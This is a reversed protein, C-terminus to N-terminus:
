AGGQIPLNQGRSRSLLDAVDDLGRKRARDAATHGEKDRISADAGLGLLLRAIELARADDDPLWMLPTDGDSAMRALAPEESLVTRLREVAGTWVLRFVDWSVRTLLEMTRLRRGYIAFGLPTSGYQTEMPDVAAGREILLATVEPADAYAAEHLARTGKADEVDASMGLDLLLAVVDARDHRAAAFMTVTSRLYEPHEQALARAQDRDLRFCAAAFAEEGELVLVGPPAGHRVLLDAMEQRGRRLAEEHLTLKSTRPDRAPPPNPSAGHALIWEALELNNKDVAIGLLYRAGCGYGGMDLMSWNPDDWDAQRGLKVAQAHMQELLWLIDGHFHTNYLVQMDYPEAGREFLLRTLAEFQPHRPANEEGEGFVCTLATYHISDSGGPYWANPDAGRDLLARAIAVANDNAAPHSLRTSCLYLLPPWERPGGPTSASEPDAALLRQVAELDGCVVATYISNRVIEPHRRLLRDAMHGASVRASGGVRWDLSANKLFSAVWEAHRPDAAAAELILDRVELHGAYDAWGAPPAHYKGEMAFPDAGHKLLVSVVEANGRFAAAHLPTYGTTGDVATSPDDRADVSAGLRILEEIIRGSADESARVILTGWRHGPKLCDPDALVLREIDATRQLGIAAPLQLVAGREILLQAM